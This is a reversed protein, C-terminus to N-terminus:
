FGAGRVGTLGDVHVKHIIKGAIDSIIGVLENISVLLESGISLPIDVESRLLKTTVEICDDVYM